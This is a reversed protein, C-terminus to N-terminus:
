EDCNGVKNLDIKKSVKSVQECSIKYGESEPFAVKLKDFVKKADLVWTLTEGTAFLHKGDQSVNIRFYM